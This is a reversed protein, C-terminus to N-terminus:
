AEWEVAIGVAGPGAHVGLVTTAYAFYSEAPQFQTCAQEFVARGEEEADAHLVSVRVVRRGEVVQAAVKGLYELARKRTRVNIAPEIVGDRVLLVPKLNLASGFFLKSSSIRGGRKLHELSNITFVLQQRAATERIASAIEDPSAGQERAAAGSLVAHGLTWSVQRTDIVHVPFDVMSQAMMASAYTGSLESSVVACVVEDAGDTERAQQFATVFDQPTAQSTKPIDNSARLRAYFEREQIDVGDRLSQDGWVVYLPVVHIGRERALEPPLNCTSDTILATRAAM